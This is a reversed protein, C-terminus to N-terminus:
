LNENLYEEIIDEICTYHQRKILQQIQFLDVTSLKVPISIYNIYDPDEEIEKFIIKDDKQKKYNHIESWIMLIGVPLGFCIFGLTDNM